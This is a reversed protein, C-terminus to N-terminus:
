PLVLGPTHAPHSRLPVCAAKGRRDRTPAMAVLGPRSEGENEQGRGWAEPRAAEQRVSPHGPCSPLTGKKGM